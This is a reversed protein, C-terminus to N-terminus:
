RYEAGFFLITYGLDTSPGGFRDIKTSFFMASASTQLPADYNTVVSLSVTTNRSDLNRVTNDDRRSVSFGATAYHRAGMVIQKGAQLMFRITNDDVSYISSTALPNQNTMSL